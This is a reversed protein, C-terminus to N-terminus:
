DSIEDTKGQRCNELLETLSYKSPGIGDYVVPELYETNVGFPRGNPSKFMVRANIDFALTVVAGSALRATSGAKGFEGLEILMGIDGPVIKPAPRRGELIRKHPPPLRTLRVLSNVRFGDPM